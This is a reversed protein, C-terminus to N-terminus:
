TIAWESGDPYVHFIVAGIGYVSTDGPMKIPESPDYLALVLATVLSNRQHKM